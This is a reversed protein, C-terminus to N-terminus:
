VVLERLTMFILGEKDIGSGRRVMAEEVMPLTLLQDSNIDLSDFFQLLPKNTESLQRLRSITRENLIQLVSSYYYPTARQSAPHRLLGYSHGVANVVTPEITIQAPPCGALIEVRACLQPNKERMALALTREAEIVVIDFNKRKLLEEIHFGGGLGFVILSKVSAIREWERDVWISAEKVPDVSSHLLAGNVIPIWKGSTCQVFELDL